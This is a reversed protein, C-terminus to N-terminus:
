PVFAEARISLTELVVDSGSAKSFTRAYVQARLANADNMVHETLLRYDNSDREAFLYYMMKGKRAIKLKGSLAAIPDSRITSVRDLKNALEYAWIAQLIHVGDQRQRREMMCDSNDAADFHLHLDIGPGWAKPDPATKLGGYVAVVEFDGHLGFRTEYGVASPKEEGVPLVIRAGANTRRVFKGGGAPVSLLDAPLPKDGRFDFEFQAPLKQAFDTRTAPSVALEQEALPPLKKPWDGRYIVNRVRAESHAADHYFGFIRENTPELDRRYVEVGNLWVGVTEGALTLRVQNWDGDKLPLAPPGRRNERETTRNDPPLGTRDYQADTLWHIDVGAPDLLFALRGLAPSVTAEGRRYFFQYDIQGDEFLPRHYQLLSQWVGERLDGLKHGFIEDGLKEWNLNQGSVTEGYYEALWADLNAGASLSLEAPVQPTGTIRVHRAEASFLVWGQFALWPDAEDTLPQSFVQRDNISVTAQGDKVSLRYRYWQGLEDLQPDIVGKPREREFNALSFSKRDWTIGLRLAAYSTAIERWGFTSLEAEVEFTGRLPVAFYAYDHEHGVGHALGGPRHQWHARPHGGGRTAATGHAAMQWQKVPPPAGFDADGASEAILTARARLHRVTREWNMGTGPCGEALHNLMSLALPRLSPREFAAWAAILVPWRRYEPWEKITNKATPYLTQLSSRARDDDGQAIAILTLFAAKAETAFQDTPSGGEGRGEGPPLPLLRDPAGAKLGPPLPLVAPRAEILTRLEDLKGLETAVAVLDLAPVIFDGGRTQNTVVGVGKAVPPPPNVPTFDGYLRVVSNHTAGPLVWNRLYAYREAAPLSRSAQWTQWTTLIMNEEGLLAETLGAPDLEEDAKIPALLNALRSESLEAPWDDGSLVVNRVQVSTRNKYHFFSFMRDNSAELPRRYVETDNLSLAVEGKELRLRVANWEGPKLPMTKPGRRNDPEVAVNDPPLESSDNEGDTIWHLAVGEPEILFALRDLAPYVHISDPTYLFEYRLTEGERLPRMYRLRSQAGTPLDRALGGRLVGAAARWDYDYF